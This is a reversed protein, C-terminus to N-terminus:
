STLHSAHHSHLPYPHLTSLHPRHTRLNPSAHLFTSTVPLPNIQPRLRNIIELATIKRENLPKLAIFINGTNTAGGGGTFAMVNQVAPDKKIVDVIKQVSDNM